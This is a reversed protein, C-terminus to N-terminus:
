SIQKHGNYSIPRPNAKFTPLGKMTFGHLTGFKGIEATLKNAMHGVTTNTTERMNAM